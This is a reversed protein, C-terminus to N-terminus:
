AKKLGLVKMKECYYDYCKRINNRDQIFDASISRKTVDNWALIIYRMTIINDIKFNKCLVKCGYLVFTEDIFENNLKQWQLIDMTENMDPSFSFDVIFCQSVGNRMKRIPKKGNHNIVVNKNHSKKADEIQILANNWSLGHRYSYNYVDDDKVTKTNRYMENFVNKVSPHVKYQKKGNKTIRYKKEYCDYLKIFRM